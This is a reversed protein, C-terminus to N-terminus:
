SARSGAYGPMRADIFPLSEEERAADECWLQVPELARVATIFRQAVPNLTIGYTVFRLAVPVYM